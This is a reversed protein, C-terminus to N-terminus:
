GEPLMLTECDEGWLSLVLDLDAQNVHGNGDLDGKTGPSVQTNWADLIMDLEIFDIEGDGNADATCRQYIRLRTVGDVLAILRGETSFDIASYCTASNPLDVFLTMTNDDINYRYINTDAQDYIFIDDSHPDLALGQIRAAPTEIARYGANSYEHLTPGDSILISDNYFVVDHADELPSDDDLILQVTSATELSFAWAGDPSGNHGRDVFFGEGPEVFPGNYGMPAVALGTPDDDGVHLDITHVWVRNDKYIYDPEPASMFFEGTVPDFTIDHMRGPRGVKVGPGGDTSFRQIGAQNVTAPSDRANVYIMRDVPNIAVSRMRGGGTLSGLATRYWGPEEIPYEEFGGSATPGVLLLAGASAAAFLVPRLM